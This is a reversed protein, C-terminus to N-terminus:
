SISGSVVMIGLKGGAKWGQVTEVRTYGEIIAYPSIGILYIIEEKNVTSSVRYDRQFREM